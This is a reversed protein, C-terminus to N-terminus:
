PSPKILNEIMQRRFQDGLTENKLVEILKSKIREIVPPIEKNNPHEIAIRAYKNHAKVLRKAKARDRGRELKDDMFRSREWINRISQRRILEEDMSPLVNARNIYDTLGNIFDGLQSEDSIEVLTIGEQKCIKRKTEDDRLRKNFGNADGHMFEIYEFHQAGQVEVATRLMPIYFDLELRNGEKNQLWIPRHNELIKYGSFYFRLRNGVYNQLASTM